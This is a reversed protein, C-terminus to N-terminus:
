QLSKWIKPGLYAAVMTTIVSAVIGEVPDHKTYRHLLKNLTLGLLEETIQEGCTPCIFM